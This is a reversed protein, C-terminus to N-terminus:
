RMRFLRRLRYRLLKWRYDARHIGIQHFWPNNRVNEKIVHGDLHEKWAAYNFSLQDRKSGSAIENWWREMTRQVDPSHHRRLLISSFILGNHPPYGESRYRGIQQTMIAPDDKFRGAKRGLEMISEFEEYVCDRADPYTLRHDFYAMNSTAMVNDILTVIDGVILYNGDIWVSYTHDPFYRHPRVKVERACRTPDSFRPAVMRVEWPKARLPRDSFCVFDVGKIKKQPLLGDYGGFIATYIVINNHSM